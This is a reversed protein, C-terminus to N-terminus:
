LRRLMGVALTLLGMGGLSVIIVAPPIGSRPENNASGLDPNSNIPAPPTFTPAAVGFNGVGGAPTITYIGTPAFMAQATATEPAGPTQAIVTSTENIALIAPDDTAVPPPTVAPITFEDGILVVLNAYVWAEGNPAEAWQVLYWDYGLWRGIVPLDTGPALEAIITREDLTPASRLRTIPDGVTRVLVPTVTPTRTPTATPGGLQTATATPLNVQAQTATPTSLQQPPLITEAASAGNVGMALVGCGLLSAAILAISKLIKSDFKTDM